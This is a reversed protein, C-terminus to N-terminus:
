SPNPLNIMTAQMLAIATEKEGEFASVEGQCVTLTRGAKVVRGRAVFRDGRAPALLNVKFEVTLVNSGKPLLTMAAFGCASDAITTIVGAHVFGHQQLLHDAFPLEIEVLGPEAKIARAGITKMISQSELAREAFPFDM